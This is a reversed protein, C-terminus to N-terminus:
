SVIEGCAVYLGIEEASKHLNVAFPEAQLDELSIEVTTTSQGNADVDQLPFAPNPDLDVCTGRHIHAPHGGTAGVLNLEVDTQDGNARLTATGSMGSDNLEGLDITLGDASADVDDGAEPTAEDTAAAPAAISVSNGALLTTSRPEDPEQLTGLGSYTLRHRGDVQGLQFPEGNIAFPEDSTWVLSADGNAIGKAKDYVSLVNHVRVNAEAIQSGSLFSEPTEFSGGGNSNLFFRFSGEATIAIVQEEITTRSTIQASGFFTFRATGENWNTPDADTFLEPADLGAIHTLYGYITLDTGRQDLKGIYELANGGDSAGGVITPPGTPEETAEATAEETAVPSAAQIPAETAEETPEAGDDTVIITAKMRPHIECHYAFEGAEDFTFSFSGGPDITGSDFAGGDATATHPAEGANTWTVTTGVPIELVDPAFQFDQIEVAEGGAAEGDDAPEATAEEAAEVVVITATMRPHIACHYAFEGAEDFTFSFSQGSGLEGSDFTGDDSTVTHPADGVNTWTVTTGVTIEITDPSFQFDQIEVAVEDQAAARPVSPRSVPAVLLMAMLLPVVVLLRRPVAGM